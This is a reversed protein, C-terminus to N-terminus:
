IRRIFKVRVLPFAMKKYFSPKYHKGLYGTPDQKGTVKDLFFKYGKNGLMEFFFRNTISTKVEGVINERVLTDYDMNEILSKAALFGSTMAYRMGFGWMFDQFGAREGVFLRGNEKWTKRLFCNIFSTFEKKGRVDFDLIVRFKDVTKKLYEHVDEFNKYLVVAITAEHNNVLFYAYGKPALNDDVISLAIDKINTKFKIGRILINPKIPGAAIIDSNKFDALKNFFIEVGSDLAQEKLGQDLSNKSTGRKVLYFFPRRLRIEYKELDHSYFDANKYPACLFNTKINMKKLVLLADENTTWNEIGQFDNNFRCGVDKEKEYVKVPFGAKALNIAVTLGSVGAGAITIKEMM